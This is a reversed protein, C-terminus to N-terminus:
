TKRSSFDNEPVLAQSIQVGRNGTYSIPLVVPFFIRPSYKGLGGSLPGFCFNSSNKSM